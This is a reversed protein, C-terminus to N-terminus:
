GGVVPTPSPTSHTTAFAFFFVFFLIYALIFLFFLGISVYGIILGALALGAGAEGTRKIQSRAVHGTIVAVIGGLCWTGIVTSAAFCMSVIAWTNYPRAAQAAMQHGPPPNAPPPSPPLAQM